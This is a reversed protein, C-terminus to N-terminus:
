AVATGDLEVLITPLALRTVAPITTALAVGAAGLHSALSPVPTALAPLAAAGLEPCPGGIFHFVNIGLFTRGDGVRM